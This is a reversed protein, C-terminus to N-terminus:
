EHLESVNKIENTPKLSKFREFVPEKELINLLEFVSRQAIGTKRLNEISEDFSEQDKWKSILLYENERDTSKLIEAELCGNQTLLFDRHAKLHILGTKIQYEKFRFIAIDTLM